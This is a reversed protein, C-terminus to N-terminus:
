VTINIRLNGTEPDIWQKPVDMLVEEGPNNENAPGKADQQDGRGTDDAGSQLDFSLESDQPDFGANQLARELAATDRQLLSLTEPKEVTLHAKVRGEESFDMEIDLKGLEPPDLNLTMKDGERQIAMKTLAEEARAIAPHMVAGAQAPTHSVAQIANILNAQGKGNGPTVSNLMEALHADDYETSDWNQPELVEEFTAAQATATQTTAGSDATTGPSPLAMFQTGQGASKDSYRTKEAAANTLNGDEDSFMPMYAAVDEESVASMDDLVVTDKPGIRPAVFTQASAVVLDDQIELDVDAKEAIVPAAVVTNNEVIVGAPLDILNMQSTDVQTDMLGTFEDPLEGDTLDTLDTNKMLNFAPLGSKDDTSQMLPGQVTEGNNGFLMMWFDMMGNPGAKKQEAAQTAISKSTNASGASQAYSIDSM